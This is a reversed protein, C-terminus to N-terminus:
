RSQAKSGHQVLSECLNLMLVRVGSAIQYLCDHCACVSTEFFAEGTITLDSDADDAPLGSPRPQRAACGSSTSSCFHWALGAEPTPRTNSLM